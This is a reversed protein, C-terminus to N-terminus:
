AQGGGEETSEFEAGASYDVLDINGTPFGDRKVIIRIGEYRFLFTLLGKCGICVCMNPYIWPDDKLPPSFLVGVQRVAM